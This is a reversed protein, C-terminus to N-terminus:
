GRLYLGLYDKRRPRFEPRGAPGPVVLTDPPVQQGHLVCGASVVCGDGLVTDGTVVANPYLVVNRGIQPRQAGVRGVTVQQFVVLPGAYQANGLVAGLGHSLFFVEPMQVAYFLDIANLARNLCFLREALVGHGQQRFAENALLYLLSAHQLANYPHYVGPEFARVAALIPALRELAPALLPALQEADAAPGDGPVLSDLQRALLRLLAAESGLTCRVRAPAAVGNM